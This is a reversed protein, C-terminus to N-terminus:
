SSKIIIVSTFIITSFPPSTVFRVFLKISAIEFIFLFISLSAFAMFKSIFLDKVLNLVTIIKNNIITDINIITDANKVM